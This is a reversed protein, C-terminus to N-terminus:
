KKPNFKISDDANGSSIFYKLFREYIKDVDNYPTELDVIQYLRDIIKNKEHKNYHSANIIGDNIIDLIDKGFIIVEGKSPYKNNDRYYAVIKKIEDAKKLVFPVVNKEYCDKCFCIRARIYIKKRQKHPIKVIIKAVKESPFHVNSFPWGYNDEYSWYSYDKYKNKHVPIFNNYGVKGCLICKDIYLNYANQERSSRTGGAICASLDKSDTDKIIDIIGSTDFSDFVAPFDIQTDLIELETDSDKDLNNKISEYLNM